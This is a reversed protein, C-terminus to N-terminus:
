WLVRVGSLSAFARDASVLTLSEVMCQAAVMRDFPDRHAWDLAGAVLGHETTIPLHQGGLRALHRDYARLLVDAEPLKGLRHKTSLEWASVASVVLVTSRDALASRAADSLRTPDTLMWLLVHTDVLLRAATM